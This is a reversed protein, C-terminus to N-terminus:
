GEGHRSPMSEAVFDRIPISWAEPHPWVFTHAGPVEALHGRPATRVLEHAWRETFLRDERGRLVLVPVPLGALVDELHDDLHARVIHALRR